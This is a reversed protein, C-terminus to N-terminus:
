EQNCNSIFFKSKWVRIKMDDSVTVALSEDVPNIAIANVTDLHGPMELLQIGHHRDWIGARADDIGSAVLHKTVCLPIWPSPDSAVFAFQEHIRQSVFDMRGLDLVHCNIKSGVPPPQPIPGVILNKYDKPWPRVNVYLYRFIIQILLFIQFKMAFQAYRNCPSLTMGVIRGHM